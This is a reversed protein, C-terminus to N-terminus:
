SSDKEEFLGFINGETDSCTALYGWGPVAQRSQIIKGGLAVVQKLSEEVSAVGIFNTIGVQQTSEKKAMGGSLGKRGQLDSTAILYYDVPGPLLEFTWDFLKEYFERARAPNGAPLDFHIITAM